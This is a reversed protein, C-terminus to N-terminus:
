QWVYEFCILKLDERKLISKKAETEGETAANEVPEGISQVASILEDIQSNSRFAEYAKRLTKIYVRPQPMNIKQLASIVDQRRVAPHNLYGRLLTAITQQIPDLM